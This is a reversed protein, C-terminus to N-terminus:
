MSWYTETSPDCHAPTDAAIEIETGTMLNIVTKMPVIRNNWDAESMWGYQKVNTPKGAAIRKARNRELCTVSRKAGAATDFSALRWKVDANESGNVIEYTVFRM